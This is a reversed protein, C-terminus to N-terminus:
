TKVNQKEFDKCKRALSQLMVLLQQYIDLCSFLWFEMAHTFLGNTMLSMVEQKIGYTGHRVKCNAESTSANSALAGCCLEVFKGYLERGTDKPINSHYQMMRGKAKGGLTSQPVILVDGPLDLISVLRKSDTLAESLRINLASKVALVFLAFILLILVINNYALSNQILKLHHQKYLSGTNEWKSLYVNMKSHSINKLLSHKKWTPIFFPWYFTFLPSCHLFSSFSLCPWLNIYSPCFTPASLLVSLSLSLSLFFPSPVVSLVPCFQSTTYGQTTSFGHCMSHHSSQM